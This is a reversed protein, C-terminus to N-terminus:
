EDLYGGQKILISGNSVQIVVECYETYLDDNFTFYKVPLDEMALLQRALEHATIVAKSTVKEFLGVEIFSWGIDNRSEYLMWEHTSHNFDLTIRESLKNIRDKIDASNIDYDKLLIKERDSSAVIMSYLPQRKM